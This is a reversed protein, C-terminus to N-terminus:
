PRKRWKKSEPCTAFHSVYRKVNPDPKVYVAVPDLFQGRESLVINGGDMPKPNLPM